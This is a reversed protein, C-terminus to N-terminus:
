ANLSGKLTFVDYGGGWRGWIFHDTVGMSEALEIVEKMADVHDKKGHSYCAILFQKKVIVKAQNLSKVYRHIGLTENEQFSKGIYKTLYDVLKQAKWNESVGGWRKVQSTVDLEGKVTDGTDSVSGGLAVYWCARLLALDQFGVVAVHMHYAGRKQREPVACFDYIRKEKRPVLEGNILDKERVLRIFRTFYQFFEERTEINERTHLTLMHDAKIQIVSHSVAEKARRVARILNEAKKEDSTSPYSTSFGSAQEPTKQIFHKVPTMTFSMFGDVFKKIKVRYEYPNDVTAPANLYDQTVTANM